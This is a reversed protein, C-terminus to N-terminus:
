FFTTAEPAFAHESRMVRHNGVSGSVLDLAKKDSDICQRCAQQSLPAANPACLGLRCSEM